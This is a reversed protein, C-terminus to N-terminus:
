IEELKGVLILDPNELKRLDDYAKFVARSAFAAGELAPAAIEAASAVLDLTSNAHTTVTSAAGGAHGLQFGLVTMANPIVRAVIDAVQPNGMNAEAYAMVQRAKENYAGSGMIRLIKEMRLERVEPM